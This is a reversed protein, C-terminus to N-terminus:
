PVQKPDILPIVPELPKGMPRQQRIEDDASSPAPVALAIDPPAPVAPIADIVPAKRTVGPNADVSFRPGSRGTGYDIWGTRGDRLLVRYWNGERRDSELSAGQELRAIVLSRQTPKERVDLSAALVQIAFRNDSPTATIGSPRASIRQTAAPDESTAPVQAALIGSLACVGGAPLTQCCRRAIGDFAPAFM